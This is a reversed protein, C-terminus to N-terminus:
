ANVLANATGAARGRIVSAPLWAARESAMKSLQAFDKTYYHLHLASAIAKSDHMWPHASCKVERGLTVVGVSLCTAALKPACGHGM